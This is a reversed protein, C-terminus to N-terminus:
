GVSLTQPGLVAPRTEVTVLEVAAVSASRAVLPLIGDITNARVGLAAVVGHLALHPGKMERKEKM